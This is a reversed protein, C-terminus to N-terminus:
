ALILGCHSLARLRCVAMPWLSIFSSSSSLCFLFFIKAVHLAKPIETVNQCLERVSECGPIAAAHLASCVGDILVRTKGTRDFVSRLTRNLHTVKHRSTSYCCASHRLCKCLGVAIKSTRQLPCKHGSIRDTWDWPQIYNEGQIAPLSPM